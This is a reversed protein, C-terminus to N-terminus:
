RRFGRGMWRYFRRISRTGLFYGRWGCNSGMWGFGIGKGCGWTAAMGGSLYAINLEGKELRAFKDAGIVEAARSVGQEGPSLGLVAPVGFERAHGGEGVVIEYEDMPDASVGWWREVVRAKGLKLAPDGLVARLQDAMMEPIPRFGRQRLMIGRHSSAVGTAVTTTGLFRSTSTFWLVVFTILVITVSTLLTRFKRRRMNAIGLLVASMLVSMRGFSAGSAAVRGTRMRKLEADFKQYLVVIVLGSMFIIAFALVIMLPSASIKFAPHFTWLAGTMVAFIAGMGALQRYVNPSAILLREMCFSFPVCIMLLFIAARVVDRAMSQAADYVRAENAWAGTASRMLAVGDDGRQAEEARGLEEGADRHLEDVLESSVGARRYNELRADDLRYFDRATALALPGLGNLEGATYGRGEGDGSAPVNVLILRNGIAGYRILLDSRAGPESFGALMMNDLWVSYHEAEAGRRADLVSVAGLTQLFRPDYLGSLSYEECDFPLSRLPPVEQKIDASWKIDEAQRGYDTTATIEGSLPDIRYVNVAFTQMDNTANFPGVLVDSPFQPLGEFRYQGLSDCAQVETRRIGLVWPMAGLPPIKQDVGGNLIYSYTAVFGERPLDPVPRGASASVVQGTFGANLERVRGSGRFAPDSWAHAFLERVGNLQAVVVGVDIRDLTDTPTDRRLRLDDLTVMSLGPVGWGFAMESGLPLPGALFSNASRLGRLPGMDIEGGVKGWWASGAVHNAFDEGRGLMWQTFPSVEGMAGNGARQFFGFSMPGVRYGRDSLDLGVLLEILRGQQKAGEAGALWQHLEVRRELEGKRATYEQVLGDGGSDGEVGRVGEGPVGPSPQPSPRGQNERSGRDDRGGLRAIARDIYERAEAAFGARSLEGPRDRFMARLQNLEQQEGEMKAIEASNADSENRLRFLRDQVELADADVIELIRQVLGRDGAGALKQLSQRAASAEEIEGRVEGINADVERMQEGWSEGPSGLAMLMNRTVLFQIGDAGSFFVVVPRGWPHKALDRVLGLGAAAQVAQSAGPSLDPVLSTSDLPVSFMLAAGKKKGGKAGGVLAYYNVGVRREWKVSAKITGWSIRGGRLDDGLRGPPVYFRPFNVPIRLDDEKLDVWSTQDSGLVLAARAGQYFVEPWRGGASAEIVAIQGKLSAPRLEEYRCEGAYVVKGSIGGVPTSCTRIQAPWFPYVNEVRGGAMSLTAWETVPTMVGFEHKQLEVGPLKGIEGELYKGAAYYGASGV